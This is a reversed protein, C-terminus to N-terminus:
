DPQVFAKAPNNEMGKLIESFKRKENDRLPLKRIKSVLKTQSVDWYHELGLKKLTDLLNIAISAHGPACLHSHYFMNLAPYPNDNKAHYIGIRNYERARDPEAFLTNFVRKFWMQNVLSEPSVELNLMACDAKLLFAQATELEDILYASASIYLLPFLEDDSVKASISRFDAENEPSARECLCNLLFSLYSISESFDVSGKNWQTKLMLQILKEVTAEQEDILKPDSLLSYLYCKIKILRIANRFFVNELSTGRKFTLFEIAKPLGQAETTLLAFLETEALSFTHTGQSKLLAQGQVYNEDRLDLYLQNTMGRKRM